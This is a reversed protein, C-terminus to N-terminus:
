RLAPPYFESCFKGYCIRPITVLSTMLQRPKLRTIRAYELKLVRLTLANQGKVSTKGWSKTFDRSQTTYIDKVDQWIDSSNFFCLGSDRLKSYQHSRAMLRECFPQFLALMNQFTSENLFINLQWGFWLHWYEDGLKLWDVQLINQSMTPLKSYSRTTLLRQRIQIFNFLLRRM